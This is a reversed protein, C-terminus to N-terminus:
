QQPWTKFVRSFFLGNKLLWQKTDTLQRERFNRLLMLEEESLNTLQRVTQINGYHQLTYRIRFPLDTDEINMNMLGESVNYYNTVKIEM